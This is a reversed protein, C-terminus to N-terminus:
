QQELYKVIDGVTKMEAFVDDPITVDLEEELAMALEVADLSDAGLDDQLDADMTIEDLDVNLNEAIVNKIQDIKAQEMIVM